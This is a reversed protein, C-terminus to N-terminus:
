KQLAGNTRACRLSKVDNVYSFKTKTQGTEEATQQYFTQEAQVYIFDALFVIKREKQEM